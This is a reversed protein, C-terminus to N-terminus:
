SILKTVKLNNMGEPTTSIFGLSLNEFMGCLTQLMDGNMQLM